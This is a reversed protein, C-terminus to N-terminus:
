CDLEDLALQRTTAVQNPGDIPAGVLRMGLEGFTRSKTLEAKQFDFSAKM